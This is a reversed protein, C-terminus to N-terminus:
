HVPITFYVPLDPKTDRLIEVIAERDEPSLRPAAVRGSLDLWMRQYVAEKAPAPLGDFAATFIMYSCPYRMLRTQLDFQRLSRGKRDRPGLASFKETFGSTGEIRDPLPAADLFLLNDVLDKAAATLDAGPQGIRTILNMMRTQHEFVMLAVIDSYPTLYRTTDFHIPSGMHHASGSNGTVYWGGWLKDFPTRQDTDYGAPQQLPVGDPRTFVSRVLTGSAHCNLCDKRRAFFPEAREAHVWPRQDLSYFNMNGRSDQSAVEIFGGRVYGVFVSDNFFLTRPSAPEIRM